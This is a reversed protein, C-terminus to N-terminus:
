LHIMMQRRSQQWAPRVRYVLLEEADIRLVKITEDFEQHPMTRPEENSNLVDTQVWAPAPHLAGVSTGKLKSRQSLTCAHLVAKTSSYVATSKVGAPHRNRRSCDDLQCGPDRHFSGAVTPALNGEQGMRAIPAHEPLAPSM